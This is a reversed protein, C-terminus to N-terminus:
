FGVMCVLVQNASNGGGQAVREKIGLDQVRQAGFVHTADRQAHVSSVVPTASHSTYPIMSPSSGMMTALAMVTASALVM